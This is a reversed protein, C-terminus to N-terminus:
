GDCRATIYDKDDKYVISVLEASGTADNYRSVVHSYSDYNKGLCLARSNGFEAMRTCDKGHLPDYSKFSTRVGWFANFSLLCSQYWYGVLEQKAATRYYEISVVHDQVAFSQQSLSLTALLSISIYKRKIM